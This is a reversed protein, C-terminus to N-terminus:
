PAGGLAAARLERIRTWWKTPQSLYHELTANPLAHRRDPSRPEAVPVAHVGFPKWNEQRFTENTLCEDIFPKNMANLDWRKPYNGTRDNGCQVKQFGYVEDPHFIGGLYVAYLQSTWWSFEDMGDYYPLVLSNFVVDRHFATAFGQYATLTVAESENNPPKWPQPYHGAWGPVGVAPRWKLLMGEFLKGTILYVDDDLFIYYEYRHPLQVALHWLRNRGSTWTTGPRHDCFAAPTEYTLCITHSRGSFRPKELFTKGQVLYLFQTPENPGPPDWIDCKRITQTGIIAMPLSPNYMRAFEIMTDEFAVVVAANILLNFSIVTLIGIDYAKNKYTVLNLQKYLANFSATMISVGGFHWRSEPPNPWETSLFVPADEPLGLQRHYYKVAQAIHDFCAKVDDIKKPLWFWRLWNGSRIKISVYRDPLNQKAWAVATANWKRAWRFRCKGGWLENSWDGSGFSNKRWNLFAVSPYRPAPRGEAEIIPTGAGPTLWRNVINFSLQASPFHAPMCVLQTAQIRAGYAPFWEPRSSCNDALWDLMLATTITYNNLELFEDFTIVPLQGRTYELDFYEWMPLLYKASTFGDMAHNSRWQTWGPIGQINSMRVHPLVFVLNFREAITAANEVTKLGTQQREWSDILLVFRPEAPLPKPPPTPWDRIGVCPLNRLFLSPPLPPFYGESVPRIPKARPMIAPAGPPPHATEVLLSRVEPLAFPEPASQLSGDSEVAV